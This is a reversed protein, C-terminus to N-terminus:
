EISCGPNPVDIRLPAGKPLIYSVYVVAEHATENSLLGAHPGSEWFTQGAGVTQPTCKSDYHVTTGSKVTVLVVGPHRHWGSTAGPPLVIQQVAHDTDHGTRLVIGDANARVPTTLTGRALLTPIAGAALAVTVTTAAALVAVAMAIPRKSM